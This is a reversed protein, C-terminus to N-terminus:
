FQPYPHILPLLPTSVLEFTNSMNSAQTSTNSDIISSHITPSTPLSVYSFPHSSLTSNLIITQFDFVLIQLSPIVSISYKMNKPDFIDHKTNNNNNNSKSNDIKQNFLFELIEFNKNLPKTKKFVEKPKEISNFELSNTFFPKSSSPKDFM